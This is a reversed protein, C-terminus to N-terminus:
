PTGSPARPRDGWVAEPHPIRRPPGFCPINTLLDHLLFSDEGGPPSPPPAPTPSPLPVPDELGLSLPFRASGRPLLSPLPDHFWLGLLWHTSGLACSVHPGWVPCRWPSLVCVFTTSGYSVKLQPGLVVALAHVWCGLCRSSGFGRVPMSGFCGCHMSGHCVDLHPGLVAFYCPGLVAFYHPGLVAFYCPGWVALDRPGLVVFIARVWCWSIAHVWLWTGSGVDLGHVLLKLLSNPCFM